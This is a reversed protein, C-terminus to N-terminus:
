NSKKKRRVKAVFSTNIHLIDKFLNTIIYGNTNIELNANPLKRYVPVIPQVLPPMKGIITEGEEDEHPHYGIEYGLTGVVYVIDDIKKYKLAGNIGEELPVSRWPYPVVPPLTQNNKLLAQYYAFRYFLDNPNEAVKKKFDSISTRNPM